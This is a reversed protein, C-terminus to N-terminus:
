VKESYKEAYELVWLDILETFSDVDVQNLFQYHSRSIIEKNQITGKAVMEVIHTSTFPRILMEFRSYLNKSGSGARSNFDDRSIKAGWGDDSVLTQFRFGPFHDSLKKLCNEIHDSLDLRCRSHLSKLEDESMAQEAKERAHIDRNQQGRVIAKELRQEFDM